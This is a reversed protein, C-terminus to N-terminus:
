IINKFSFLIEEGAREEEERGPIYVSKLCRPDHPNYSTCITSSYSVPVRDPDRIKKFFGNLDQVALTCSNSNFSTPIEITFIFRYGM